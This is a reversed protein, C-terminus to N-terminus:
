NQELWNKGSTVDVTLPVNLSAVSEMEEKLIKKVNEVSEDPAEVILEDHVQMVIKAAPEEKSLRNYVKIMALKMIDAATGQIPANMAVRKGFARQMGNAANLEPIYRRRGMLTETYGNAKAEEVVHELYSDIFPYNLLYSKIYKSAEATTIGIDKALSFGSIGYVIGFNVAKARKRMEENVSEEPVGFVASATKRHIDAGSRFAESMNYDDSIHALLRLEIQSYDADVLSYGEKSIFYRRMERGMKTRIPINQLNPDASSLRGTATLAQKFDTHIRQNEDAVKPLQAAYTGRLKTVQRYELIDDIIPSYPRLEELTEADTSFGNKNKKSKCPLGLKVYLVEGLQKPSNINFEGLAQMYIREQLEHALGDLAESFELMGESNIKFGTEEIDALINILPIELEFLIKEGGAERIKSLMIEELKPLLEAVPSNEEPAEGLFMSLLSVLKPEGSGPNLVYAYLMLDLLRIGHSTKIGLSRLKHLLAKGDYCIIECENDFLCQLGGDTYSIVYSKEGNFVNIGEELLLVSIRKGKALVVDSAKFICKDNEKSSDVEKSLCVDTNSLRQKSEDDNKLLKFKSIFSNLELETFKKYLGSKDFGEYKLDDLTKGIPANTEIRALKRSLFANEKGDILKTRVSKTISADDINEYIGELTSFKQILSAATKEGIGKVGPINDSSDGMLAKMDVFETPLIGYKEKFEETKMAKTESNGVLLVTIKGDILQLLDRDGSLVYSETEEDCGHAMKAVTGQIDDAEYGPLEMVHIGMLEMCEKADSFQELLEPPTPNRGAKYETFMEHRFTPHKLDFAIACYDPKIADLQRSIINIMGFIANTHKGSKTTLPRVGFFARNIISNGDIVLIKKM